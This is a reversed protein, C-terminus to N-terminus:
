SSPDKGILFEFPMWTGSLSKFYREQEGKVDTTLLDKVLIEDEGDLLDDKMQCTKLTDAEAFDLPDLGCDKREKAMQLLSYNFVYTILLMESNKYEALLILCFLLTQFTLL